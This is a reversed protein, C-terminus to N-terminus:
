FFSTFLFIRVKIGGDGKGEAEPSIGGRRGVMDLAEEWKGLRVMCQAALYRCALSMDTLRLPSPPAASSTSPIASEPAPRPTTLIREAQSYQHTLFHIQALWFADDPNGAFLFLFILHTTL